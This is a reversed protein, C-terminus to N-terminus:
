CKNLFILNTRVLRTHQILNQLINLLEKSDYQVCHLARVNQPANTQKNHLKFNLLCNKM